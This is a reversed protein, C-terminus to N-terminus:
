PLKLLKFKSPAFVGASPLRAIFKFTELERLARKRSSECVGLEALANTPICVIDNIIKCSRKRDGKQFPEYRIDSLAYLYTIKAKNSLACFARDFFIGVSVFRFNATKRNKLKKDFILRWKKRTWGRYQNGNLSIFDSDTDLFRAAPVFLQSKKPPILNPVSVDMPHVSLDQCEQQCYKM